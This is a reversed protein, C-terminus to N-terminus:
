LLVTVMVMMGNGTMVEVEPEELQPDPINVNCADAAEPVILQYEAKDPPALMPVPELKVVGLKFVVVM